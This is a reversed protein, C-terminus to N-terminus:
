RVMRSGKWVQILLFCVLFDVWFTCVQNAADRLFPLTPLYEHTAAHRIDVFWSPMGIRDAVVSVPQPYGKNQM